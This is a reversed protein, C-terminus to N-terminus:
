GARDICHVVCGKPAFCPTALPAGQLFKSADACAQWTPAWRAADDSPTIQEQPPPDM